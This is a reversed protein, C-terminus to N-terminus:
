LQMHLIPYPKQLADTESRGIVRFGYHLYFGAAQDNQENVDVKDAGLDQTAFATLQRGLGRGRAAPHLFLMEIKGDAVGLFGAISGSQDRAIYVSVAYLYEELILPKLFAIDEETLFHHTARVSAEWVTVIEPFTAPDAKEILYERNMKIVIIGPYISITSALDLM